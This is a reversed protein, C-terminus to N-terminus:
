NDGDKKPEKKFTERPEESRKYERSSGDNSNYDYTKPPTYTGTNYSRKTKNSKIRNSVRKSKKKGRSKKKSYKKSYKKKGALKKKGTYKRKGSKRKVSKKGSSKKLTRKSVKGKKTRKSKKKSRKRKDTQETTNETKANSVALDGIAGSFTFVFLFSIILLARKSM